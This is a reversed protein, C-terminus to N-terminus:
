AFLLVQNTVLATQLNVSVTVCLKSFESFFSFSFVHLGRGSYSPMESSCSCLFTLPGVLLFNLSSFPWLSRFLLQLEAVSFVDYCCAKSYRGTNRQSATFTM